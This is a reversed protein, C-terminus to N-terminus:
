AALLRYVSARGIGMQRAIASAGLGRERLAKVEDSNITAPRGKYAGRLKAAEIGRQQRARIFHKELMGVMGFITLLVKGMMDSGDFSKEIQRRLNRWGLKAVPIRIVARRIRGIAGDRFEAVAITTRDFCEMGNHAM